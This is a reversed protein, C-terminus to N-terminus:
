RFEIAQQKSQNSNQFYYTHFHYSIIHGSDWSANSTSIFQGNLTPPVIHSYGYNLTIIVTILFILKM